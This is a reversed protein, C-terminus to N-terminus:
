SVEKKLLQIEDDPTLLNPLEKIKLSSVVSCIDGPILKTSEIKHWVDDRYVHIYQPNLRLTRLNMVATMRDIAVSFISFVLLVITLM